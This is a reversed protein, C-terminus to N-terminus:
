EEIQETEENKMSRVKEEVDSYDYAAKFAASIVNRSIQPVFLDKSSGMNSFVMQDLFSNAMSRYSENEDYGGYSIGNLEAYLKRIDDQTVDNRGSKKGADTTGDKSATEENEKSKSMLKELYEMNKSLHSKYTGNTKGSNAAQLYQNYLSYDTNIM